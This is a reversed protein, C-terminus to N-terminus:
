ENEEVEPVEIKCCNGGKAMSLFIHEM